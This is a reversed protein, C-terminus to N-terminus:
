GAQRRANNVLNQFYRELHVYDMSGGLVYGCFRGGNEWCVRTSVGDEAPAFSVTVTSLRLTLADEGNPGTRATAMSRPMTLFTQFYDIERDGVPASEGQYELTGSYAGALLDTLGSLDQKWATQVSFLSVVWIIFGLVVLLVAVIIVSKIVSTRKSKNM